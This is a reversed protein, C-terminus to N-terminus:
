LWLLRVSWLREPVVPCFWSVLVVTGSIRQPMSKIIAFHGAKKKLHSPTHKAMLTVLSIRRQGASGCSSKSLMVANAPHVAVMENDIRAGMLPVMKKSRLVEEMVARDNSVLVLGHVPHSELRLRGYRSMTDAIDVLLAHPVAYRSYRILIDIVQEADHGAARANWLGLPTLRYTHMHEPARELEAFPAIARRCEGALAHDTDLLITKDSQVILPGDTM